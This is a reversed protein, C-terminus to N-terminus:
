RFPLKFFNGKGNRSDFLDFDPPFLAKTHVIRRFM